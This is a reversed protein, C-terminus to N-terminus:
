EFILTSVPSSTQELSLEAVPSSVDKSWGMSSPSANGASSVWAPGSEHSLLPPRRSSTAASRSPTLIPNENSAGPSQGWGSATDSWAQDVSFVSPSATMARRQQSHSNTTTSGQIEMPDEVLSVSPTGAPSASFMNQQLESGGTVSRQPMPRLPPLNSSSISPNLNAIAKLNPYSSRESPSPGNSALSEVNQHHLPLGNMTLSQSVVTSSLSYLLTPILPGLLPLLLLLFPSSSLSFFLSKRFHTALRNVTKLAKIIQTSRFLIFLFYFPFSPLLGKCLLPLPPSFLFLLM